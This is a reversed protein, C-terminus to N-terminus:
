MAMLLSMLLPKGLFPQSQEGRKLCEDELKLEREIAKTVATLLGGHKAMVARNSSETALRAIARIASDQIESVIPDLQDGGLAFSSGRILANLMKTNCMIKRNVNENALHMITRTANDLTKTTAGLDCCMDALAELLGPHRALSERNESERAKCRLVASISNDTATSKSAVVLATLVGRYCNSKSDICTAIKTLALCARSQVDKSEDKAAVTALTSLLDPHQGMSEATANYALNTLAGGARRRGKISKYNLLVSLLADLVVGNQFEVLWKRNSKPFALNQLTTIACERIATNEEAVVMRTLTRLVEGNSALPAQNPTASALDMLAMAAYERTDDCLDLQAIKLLSNLLGKHAFLLVKNDHCNALNVITRVRVNRCAVNLPTCAVRSMCDLMGQQRTMSVRLDSIRSIYHFVKSISLIIDDAYQMKSQECRDLLRLLLPIMTPGNIHFAEVVYKSGGRFSLELAACIM